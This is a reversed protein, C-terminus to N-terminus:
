DAHGPCLWSLDRTNCLDIFSYPHGPLAPTGGADGGRHWTKLANCFNATEAKGRAGAFVGDIVYIHKLIKDYFPANKPGMLISGLFRVRASFCSLATSGVPQLPFSAGRMRQIWYNIEQLLRLLSSQTNLNGMQQTPSGVPFVFFVKPLDAINQHVM